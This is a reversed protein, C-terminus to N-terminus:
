VRFGTLRGLGWVRLQCVGGVGAWVRFVASLRTLGVYLGQLLGCHGGAAGWMLSQAGRVQLGGPGGPWLSHLGGGAYRRRVQGLRQGEALVEAGVHCPQQLTLGWLQQKVGDLNHLKSLTEQILPPM